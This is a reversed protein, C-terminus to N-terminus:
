TDFAAETAARAARRFRVECSNVEDWMVELLTVRTKELGGLRQRLVDEVTERIAREYNDSQPWQASSTFRYPENGEFRLRVGGHIFRASVFRRFEFRVEVNGTRHETDM